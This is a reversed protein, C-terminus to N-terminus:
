RVFPFGLACGGLMLGLAASPMLSLVIVVKFWPDTFFWAAWTTVIVIGAGVLIHLKSLAFLLPIYPWFAVNLGVFLIISDMILLAGIVVLNVSFMMVLSFAAKAGLMEKLILRSVALCASNLLATSIVVFLLFFCTYAIEYVPGELKSLDSVNDQIHFASLEPKKLDPNKALEKLFGQELRYTEWPSNGMGFPKGCFIGAISLSIVLLLCAVVSSRWLVRKSFPKASLLQDYFASLVGLPKLVISEPLADATRVWFNEVSSRLRGEAEKGWWLECMECLVKIAGLIVGLIVLSYLLTKAM